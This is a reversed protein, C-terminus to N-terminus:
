RSRMFGTSAFRGMKYEFLRGGKVNWDIRSATWHQKYWQRSGSGEAALEFSCSGSSDFKRQRQKRGVDFLRWLRAVETHLGRGCIFGTGQHTSARIRMGARVDSWNPAAGQWMKVADVTRRSWRAAAVRRIM